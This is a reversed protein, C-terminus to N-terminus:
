RIARDFKEYHLLGNFCGNTWDGNRHIDFSPNAPSLLGAFNALRQDEAATTNVYLASKIENPISGLAIRARAQTDVQILGVLAVKGPDNSAVAAAEPRAALAGLTALYPLGGIPAGLLQLRCVAAACYLSIPIKFTPYNADFFVQIALRVSEISDSLVPTNPVSVQLAEDHWKFTLGVQRFQRDVPGAHIQDLSQQIVNILRSDTAMTGNVVWFDTM